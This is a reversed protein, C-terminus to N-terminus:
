YFYIKSLNTCNKFVSNEISSITKPIFIMELRICEGFANARIRKTSKGIFVFRLNKCKYFSNYPIEESNVIYVYKLNTCEIFCRNICTKFSICAYSIFINHKFATSTRRRSSSIIIRKSFFQNPLVIIPYLSYIKALFYDTIYELKNLLTMIM